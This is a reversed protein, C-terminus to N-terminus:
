GLASGVVSSLLTDDRYSVYLIEGLDVAWTEMMTMTSNPSIMVKYDCLQYSSIHLLFLFSSYNIM